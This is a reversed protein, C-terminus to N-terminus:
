KWAALIVGALIFSVLNYGSDILWLATPKQSFLASNFSTAGAFGLWCLAGAMAGGSATLGSFHGLIVALVWSTLLGCVFAVLFLVPMAGSGAKMEAETKGTLAIWKKAFLAPSYWLGGLVFLVVASVLVAVLNVHPVEM